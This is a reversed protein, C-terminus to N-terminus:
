GGCPRSDTGGLFQESEAPSLERNAIRCAIAVWTRLDTAVISVDGQPGVVALEAGDAVFVAASWPDSVAIPDGLRQRSTVDWLEHEPASSILTRGDPSFLLGYVRGQPRESMLGTLDGTEGNWLRIQEDAGGSALVTGDPSFALAYVRGHGPLPPSLTRRGALDWLRTPGDPGAVALRSGDPSFVLVARDAELLSLDAYRELEEPVPPQAPLTASTAGTASDLLQVRGDDEAVAVTTGDPSFAAGIPDVEARWRLLGTSTDVLGFVSRAGEDVTVTLGLGDPSLASGSSLTGGAPLPISAARGTRTDRLQLPTGASAVAVLGHGNGVVTGFRGTGAVVDTVLRTTIDVDHVIVAGDSSGSVLLGDPGFGVVTGGGEITRDHGALTRVPSATDTVSWVGVEGDYTAAAVLGGRPDYALGSTRGTLGALQAVPRRAPVDWVLVTSGLDGAVAVRTGDPSVGIDTSAGVQDDFRVQLGTWTGTDWWVVGSAASANATYIRSGDPTFRVSRVSGVHGTLSRAAAWDATRFLVIRRPERRSYAVAEEDSTAEGGGVALWGGDPSFALSRVAPDEVALRSVPALTAADWVAATADAGGTAVFRGDPSFAVALALRDHAPVPATVTRGSRADWVTLLGDLDVAAAHAGDPSLAVDTVEAGDARLYHLADPGWQATRLLANRSEATDEVASAHVSLLAARDLHRPLSDVAAAALYRSTAVKREQEATNRASWAASALVTVLVVFTTLAAIVSRALRVTRRHRRVDEGILEDKPVGRVTAALDAIAERFRPHQLSLDDEVHAWRLDVFRPEATFRGRAAAPLCDTRDWDVDGAADDWVLSGETLVILVRDPSRQLLWHELERGVWRSSAAHRSAFLIFFESEDLASEILSWLEPAASLSTEDRFVRMARMQWWPKAFRTLGRQVAPALRGDLAHSYSIFGDYRRRPGTGGPAAPAGSSRVNM